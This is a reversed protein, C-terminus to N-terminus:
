LWSKIQFIGAIFIFMIAAVVLSVVILMVVERLGRKKAPLKRPDDAVLKLGIWQVHGEHLPASGTEIVTDIAKKLAIFGEPNGIMQDEHDATEGSCVWPTNPKENM